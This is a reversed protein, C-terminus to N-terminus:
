HPCNPQPRRNPRAPQPAPAPTIPEVAPAPKPIPKTTTPAAPQGHLGVLLLLGLVAASVILALGASQKM